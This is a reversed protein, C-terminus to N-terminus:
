LAMPYVSVEDTDRRGGNEVFGCAIIPKPGHKGYAMAYSEHDIGCGTQMGFIRHSHGVSWNVYCETHYHGQVNSIMDKQARQMSKKGEGHCYKVEDIIISEHFNWSPTELVEPCTRIWRKAISASFAKRSVIRDHNGIVVDALPFARFWKAVRKIAVDLEDGAGMGDPDSDHFSSYHNDIIDGIFLVRNCKKKKYLKKCFPLYKDLCFPEHLDGVVLLRSM